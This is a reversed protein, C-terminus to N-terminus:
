GGMGMGLGSGDSLWFWQRNPIHEKINKASNGGM